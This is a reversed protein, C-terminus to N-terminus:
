KGENKIIEAVQKNTGHFLLVENVENMLNLYIEGENNNNNNSNSNTTNTNVDSSYQWSRFTAFSQTKDEFKYYSNNNSNNNNNNNFHNIKIKIMERAHAYNRWIRSNEIRFLKVVKFQSFKQNHSDRGIGSDSFLSTENMLNNMSKLYFENELKSIDIVKTMMDQLQIKSSNNNATNSTSSTISTNSPNIACYYSHWYMPTAFSLDFQNVKSELTMKSQKETKNQKLLRISSSLSKYKTKLVEIERDVELLQKSISSNASNSNSSNNNNSSANNLSNMLQKHENVKQQLKLEVQNQEGIATQIEIELKVIEDSTSATTSTTTTPTNFISHNITNKIFYMNALLETASPRSTVDATIMTELIQLLENSYNQKITNSLKLSTTLMELQLNPDIVKQMTVGLAYIDSKFSCSAQSNFMEPAM